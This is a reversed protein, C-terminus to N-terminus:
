ELPMCLAPPICLGMGDTPIPPLQATAIQRKTAACSSFYTLAILAGLNQPLAAATSELHLATVAAHQTQLLPAGRFM